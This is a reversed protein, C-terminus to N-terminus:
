HVTIHESGTCSATDGDPLRVSQGQQLVASWSGVRVTGAFVPQSLHCAAAHQGITGAICLAAATLMAAIMVTIAAVARHSM